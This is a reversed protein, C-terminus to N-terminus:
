HRICNLSTLVPVGSKETSPNAEGEAPPTAAKAEGRRFAGRGTLPFLRSEPFWFITHDDSDSFVNFFIM